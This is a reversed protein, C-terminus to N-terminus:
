NKQKGPGDTQPHYASSQKHRIGTLLMLHKWFKAMFLKDRDSIIELPLGNECYWKDFFLIALQEATTKTTCPVIQIDSNLRDTMTLICDFGNEEPLPGIFDIAISDGREDPIPLPHLPGMAKTTSNKNRQCEM